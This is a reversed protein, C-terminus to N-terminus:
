GRKKFEEESATVFEVSVSGGVCNECYTELAQDLDDFFFLAPTKSRSRGARQQSLTEFGTFIINKPIEEQMSMLQKKLLAVKKTTPAVLYIKALPNNHAAYLVRNILLTTKGSQRGAVYTKM